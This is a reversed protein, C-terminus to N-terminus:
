SPGPDPQNFLLNASKKNSCKTSPFIPSPMLAPSSFTTLTGWSTIRTWIQLLRRPWLRRLLTTLQRTISMLWFSAALTMALKLVQWTEPLLRLVIGQPLSDTAPNGPVLLRLDVGRSSNGKSKRSRADGESSKMSPRSLDQWIISTASISLM